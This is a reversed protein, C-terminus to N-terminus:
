SVRRKLLRAAASKAFAKLRRRSKEKECREVFAAEREPRLQVAMDCITMRDPWFRDIMPHNAIACSDTLEIDPRSLQARTLLYLLQVGPAQSRHSEDFAIKWFLARDQSEIVIGMAIPRGSLTLAYVQCKGERALLRTASRVFTTLSPHSLFAGKEGKWGSAELALFDEAARRVEEPTAYRIFEVPGKEELRRQRRRLEKLEKGSGDRKWLEDADGGARLVARRYEEVIEIRRGGERAAASLAAYVPGDKAMRPFLVGVAATSRQMWDFFAEATEVAHTKDLLPTALAAQKHLWLEALGEGPLGGPTTMPFLGMLRRRGPAPGNRWVAVFYPRARLPFHRAASLAFGPEYFANPELARAALDAWAGQDEDMQELGLAEM